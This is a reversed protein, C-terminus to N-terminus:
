KSTFFFLHFFHVSVGERFLTGKIMKEKQKSSTQNSQEEVDVSRM